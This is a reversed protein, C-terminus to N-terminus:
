ILYKMLRYLLICLGAAFLSGFVRFTYRAYREPIFLDGVYGKPDGYRKALTTLPCKMGSLAFVVSEIALLVLAVWLRWDYVEVIGAYLVHLVAWVM